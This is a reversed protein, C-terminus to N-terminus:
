LTFGTQPNYSVIKLGKKYDLIYIQNNYIQFDSMQLSTWGLDKARLTSFTPVTLSGLLSEQNLDNYIYFTLYGTDLLSDLTSDDLPVSSNLLAGSVVV